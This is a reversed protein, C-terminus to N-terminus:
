LIDVRFIWQFSQHQLELDLVKSVQHLSVVWQFFVWHQSLNLALPSPPLLPHSLQIGDTVWHVHTQAFEPLYQLVPFGPTSSNMTDCLTPCLQAVSCCLCPIWRFAQQCIFPYLHPAYICHSIVWGYSFLSIIGSAAIHITKWVLHLWDTFFLYGIIDSIHPVKLFSVFSSVSSFLSM